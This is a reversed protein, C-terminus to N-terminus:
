NIGYAAEYGSRVAMGINSVARADGVTRVIPAVDAFSDVLTQDARYGVSLVVADVDRQSTLMGLIIVFVAPISKYNYKQTAVM